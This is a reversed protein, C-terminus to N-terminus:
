NMKILNKCKKSESIAEKWNIVSIKQELYGGEGISKLMKKCLVPNKKMARPCEDSKIFIEFLKDVLEDSIVTSTENIFDEETQFENDENDDNIIGTTVNETEEEYLTTDANSTTRM